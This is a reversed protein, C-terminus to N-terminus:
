FSTCTPKGVFESAPVVVTDFGAVLGPGDAAMSNRNQMTEARRAHCINRKVYFIITLLNIERDRMLHSLVRPLFSWLGPVSM